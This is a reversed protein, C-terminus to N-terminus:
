VKSRLRQQPKIGTAKPKSTIARTTDKTSHTPVVPTGETKASTGEADAKKLSDMWDFGALAPLKPKSSPKNM